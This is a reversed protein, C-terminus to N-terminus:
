PRGALEDSNTKAHQQTAQTQDLPRSTLKDSHQLV